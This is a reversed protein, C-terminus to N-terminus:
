NHDKPSAAAAPLLFPRPFLLEPDLDQTRGGELGDTCLQPIATSGAAKPDRIIQSIHLPWPEIAGPPLAASHWIRVSSLFEVLSATFVSALVPFLLWYAPSGICDYEWKPTLCWALFSPFFIGNGKRKQCYHSTVESSDGAKLTQSWMKESWRAGDWLCGESHKSEGCFTWLSTKQAKGKDPVRLSSHTEESPPLQHTEWHYGSVAPGIEKFPCTWINFFVMSVNQIGQKVRCNMSGESFFLKRTGLAAQQSEAFICHSSSCARLVAGM